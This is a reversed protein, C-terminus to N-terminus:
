SIPPGRPSNYSTLYNKQILDIKHFIKKGIDVENLKILITSKKSLFKDNKYIIISLSCGIDSQKQHKKQKSSSTEGHSHINGGLHIHEYKNIKKSPSSSLKTGIHHVSHILSWIIFNLFLLVILITVLKIDFQKQTVTKNFYM